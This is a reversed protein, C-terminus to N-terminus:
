SAPTKGLRYLVHRRLFSGPAIRPHDFDDAPNHTLGLKEMVRRSRVNHIATMSVIEDLSLTAFGFEMAARAAETAFGLGWHDRALRWGVEVAPVFPYDPPVQWLGTFGIFESTDLREVAWLGWGHEEIQRRNGEAAADSEARSVLAPFYEMVEPDANLAAFPQFDDDRWQRLLLRETEIM